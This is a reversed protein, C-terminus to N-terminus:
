VVVKEWGSPQQIDSYTRVPFLPWKEFTENSFTYSHRWLHKGLKHSSLRSIVGWVFSHLTNGMRRGGSDQWTQQRTIAASVRVRGPQYGSQPDYAQGYSIHHIVSSFPRLPVKDMQWVPFTKGGKVFLITAKEKKNIRLPRRHFRHHRIPPKWQPRFTWSPEKSNDQLIRKM